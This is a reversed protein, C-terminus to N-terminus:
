VRLFSLLHSVSCASTLLILLVFFLSALFLSFSVGIKIHPCLANGTHLCWSASNPSGQTAWNTLHGVEAWTMIECNKLKLGVDPERSVAWLRSGAECETGGEREAGGGHKNENKREWFYFFMLFIKFPFPLGRFQFFWYKKFTWVICLLRCIWHLGWWFVLLRKWVVLVFLGLIQLVVASALNGFFDQFFINNQLCTM